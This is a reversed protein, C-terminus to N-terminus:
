NTPAARDGLEDFGAPWDADSNAFTALTEGTAADVIWMGWREQVERQSMLRVDGAVAVAWVLRNPDATDIAAGPIGTALEGATVLKAATRDARRITAKDALARDIAQARTLASGPRPTAAVNFDQAPPSGARWAQVGAVAVVLTLVVAAAAGVGVFAGMRALLPRYTTVRIRGLQLASAERAYLQELHEEIDV